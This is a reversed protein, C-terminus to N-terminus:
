VSRKLVYLLKKHEDFSIEGRVLRDNLIDVSSTGSSANGGAHRFRRGFRPCFLGCGILCLVMMVAFFILCGTFIGGWPLSLGNIYGEFSM